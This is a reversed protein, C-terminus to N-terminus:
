FANWDGEHQTTPAPSLCQNVTNRLM